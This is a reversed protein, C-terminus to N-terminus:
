KKRKKKKRRRTKGKAKEDLAKQGPCHKGEVDNTCLWVFSSFVSTGVKHEGHSTLSAVSRRFSVHSHPCLRPASYTHLLCENTAFAMFGLSLVFGQEPFVLVIFTPRAM